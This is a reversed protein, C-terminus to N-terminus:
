IQIKMIDQYAQLMRDRVATATQLTMEAQALATTVETVNGGETIAKVAQAEANEGTGVASQIATRLMAGFDAGDSQQTTASEPRSPTIRITPIGSISDSM